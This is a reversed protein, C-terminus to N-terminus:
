RIERKLCKLFCACALVFNVGLQTLETESILPGKTLPATCGLPMEQVGSAGFLASEELQVNLRQNGHSTNLIQVWAKSDEQPSPESSSTYSAARLLNLEAEMCAARKELNAFDAQLQTFKAELTVM